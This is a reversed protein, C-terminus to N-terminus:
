VKKIIDMTEPSMSLTMQNFPIILDNENCVQVMINNIKRQLSYYDCGYTGNVGAIVILNLSSAGPDSFQVKLFDFVPPKSDQLDQTNKELASLFLDPLEHCIRSQVGYDLGFNILLTFGSSLNKPKLTLFEPSLYYKRSGLNELIVQEPTQSAVKGYTEDSLIVWDGNSTPFWEEEKVFPRSHQGILEGVPLNLIGGELRPNMLIANVGIEKVLWPVGKWFMREGERVTGFNLILRLEQLFKPILQRSTWSLAILFLVIFSLLLWDDLLYLVLLSILASVVFIILNYVTKVIKRASRNFRSFLKTRDQIVKYLFSLFWLLGFFTSVALLFHNGREKLFEGISESVVSFVTTGDTQLEHLSRTTEDLELQLLEPNYKDALRQLNEKYNDVIQKSSVRNDKEDNIVKPPKGNLRLLSELNEQAEQYSLIQSKLSDIRAKLNDIRRPRQTIERLAKLLPRTIEQLEDLWGLETIQQAPIDTAHLQTALTEFNKNLDDLENQLQEVRDTVERTPDKKQLSKLEERNLSSMKTVQLLQFRLKELASPLAIEEPKSKSEPESKQAQEVSVPETEQGKASSSVSIISVPVVVMAWLLAKLLSSM